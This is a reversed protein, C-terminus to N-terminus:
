SEGRNSYILWARFNKLRVVIEKLRDVFATQRGNMIKPADNLEEDRGDAFLIRAEVRPPIFPHHSVEELNLVSALFDETEKIRYSQKYEDFYTKRIVDLVTQTSISNVSGAKKLPLYVSIGRFQRPVDPFAKKIDDKLKADAKKNLNDQLIQTDM